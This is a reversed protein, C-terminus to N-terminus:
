LLLLATPLLFFFFNIILNYYKNLKHIKFFIFDNHRIFINEKKIIKKLLTISVDFFVYFHLILIYILYGEFAAITFNISLFLGYVITGIDGSFIKLNNNFNFFLMIIFSIILIINFDIFFTNQTINSLILYFVSTCLGYFSFNGDVGDIFNTSNIIFLWIVFFIGLWLKKPLAIISYNNLSNFYDVYFSNIVFFIIIIQLFFRWIHHINFFDDYLTVSGLLLTNIFLILIFQDVFYDKSQFTEPSNILYYLLLILSNLFIIIGSGKPTPKTHFKLKGPNDFLNKKILYNRLITVIIISSFSTLLFM